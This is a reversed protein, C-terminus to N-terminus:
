LLEELILSEYKEEPLVIDDLLLWNSLSADIPQYDYAAYTMRTGKPDTWCCIVYWEKEPFEHAIPDFETPKVGNSWIINEDECANLFEMVQDRHMVINTSISLGNLADIKSFDLRM